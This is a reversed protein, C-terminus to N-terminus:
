CQQQQFAIEVDSVVDVGRPGTSNGVPIPIFGGKKGQAFTKAMTMAPLGVAEMLHRNKMEEPDDSNAFRVIWRGEPHDRSAVWKFHTFQRTDMFVKAKPVPM